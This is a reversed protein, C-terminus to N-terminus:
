SRGSAPRTPWLAAAAPLSGILLLGTVVFLLLQQHTPFAVVTLPSTLVLAWAAWTPIARARRLAIGLVILAALHGVIYVLLFTTMTPDGTFRNWLDVFQKGGGLQAMQFTVDDQVTLAGWPIWGVLGLAGGVTALWPAGPYALEALGLASLPLVFSLIVFVALHLQNALSDAALNAAMAAGGQGLGGIFPSLATGATLLLPAAVIALAFTARRVSSASAAGPGVRPTAPVTSGPDPVPHTVDHM